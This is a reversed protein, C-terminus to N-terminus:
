MKDIHSETLESNYSKSQYIRKIVDTTLEKRDIWLTTLKPCRIEQTRQDQSPTFISVPVNGGIFLMYHDNSMLYDAIISSGKFEHQKYRLVFQNTEIMSKVGIIARWRVLVDDNIGDLMPLKGSLVYELAYKRNKSRELGIKHLGALHYFSTAPFEITMLESRGKAGLLFTYRFRMLERYAEAANVLDSVM